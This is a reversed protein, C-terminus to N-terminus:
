HGGYGKQPYKNNQEFNKNQVWKISKKPIHMKLTFSYVDIKNLHFVFLTLTHTCTYLLLSLFATEPLSYGM